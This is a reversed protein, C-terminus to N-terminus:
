IMSNSRLRTYTFISRYIRDQKHLDQWSRLVSCNESVLRAAINEDSGLAHHNNLDVIMKENQREHRGMQLVMMRTEPRFRPCAVSGDAKYGVARAKGPQFEVLRSECVEWGMLGPMCNNMCVPNVWLIFELSACYRFTGADQTDKKIKGSGGIM